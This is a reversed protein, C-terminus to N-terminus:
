WPRRSSSCTAPCRAPWERQAAAPEARGFQAVVEATRVVPRHELEGLGRQLVGDLGVGADLVEQVPACGRRRPPARRTSVSTRRPARRRGTPASRAPRPARRARRPCGRARRRHGRCPSPGRPTSGPSSPCGRSRGARRVSPTERRSRPPAPPPRRAPATAADGLPSARAPRSQAAASWIRSRSLSAPMSTVSVASPGCHDSSSPYVFYHGSVRPAPTRDAFGPRLLPRRDARTTHAPAPQLAAAGGRRCMHPGVM